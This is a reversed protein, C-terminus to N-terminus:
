SWCVTMDMAAPAADDDSGPSAVAGCRRPRKPLSPVFMHHETTEVNMSLQHHQLLRQQQHHQSHQQEVSDLSSTSNTGVLDQDSWSRKWTPRTSSMAVTTTTLAVPTVTSATMTMTSSSSTSEFSLPHYWEQVFRKTVYEAPKGIPIAVVQINPPLQSPHRDEALEQQLQRAVNLAAARAALPNGLFIRGKSIEVGRRSNRNGTGGIVGETLVAFATTTSSLYSSPDHGEFPQQSPSEEDVVGHNYHHYHQQEYSFRYQYDSLTHHDVVATGWVRRVWFLSGCAAYATTTEVQDDQHNRVPVSALLHSPLGSWAMASHFAAEQAEERTELLRLYDVPAVDQRPGSYWCRQVVFFERLLSITSTTLNEFAMKEETNSINLPITSSTTSAPMMMPIVSRSM